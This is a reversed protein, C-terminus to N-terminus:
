SLLPRQERPPITLTTSDTQYTTDGQFNMQIPDTAGLSPALVTM